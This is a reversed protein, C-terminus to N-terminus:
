TKDKLTDDGEVQHCEMIGGVCGTHGGDVFM